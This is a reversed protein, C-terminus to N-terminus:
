NGADTSYEGRSLIDPSAAVGWTPSIKVIVDVTVTLYFEFPSNVALGDKNFTNEGIIAETQKKASGIEITCHGKASSEAALLLVVRYRGPTLTYSYTGNEQADPAYMSMELAQEDLRSIQVGDLNFTGSTLVNNGSATEVRFWAYTVSCLTVLCLLISLVSATMIRSFAKETIKEDKTDFFNKM